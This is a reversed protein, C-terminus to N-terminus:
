RGTKGILWEDWDIPLKFPVENFRMGLRNASLAIKQAEEETYRGANRISQSYGCSDPRWWAQHEESWIAWARESKTTLDTM